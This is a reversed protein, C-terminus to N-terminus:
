NPSIELPQNASEQPPPKLSKSSVLFYGLASLGVVGLAILKILVQREIKQIEEKPNKPLSLKM